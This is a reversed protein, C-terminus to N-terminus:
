AFEKVANYKLFKKFSINNSYILHIFYEIQLM